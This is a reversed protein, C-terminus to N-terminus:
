ILCVVLSYNQYRNQAINDNNVSTPSFEGGSYSAMFPLDPSFADKIQKLEKSSDIGVVLQRTICSFVLGANINKEQAAQSIVQATSSVIDNGNNSGFTIRSGVPMLGSCIASGDSDISILARVFPRPNDVKDPTVLLPLLLDEGSKLAGNAAFGLSEFYKITSMQNIEYITNDAARTIVADSGEINSRPPLAATFFRPKVEGFLLVYSAESKLSKDNCIAYCQSFDPFNDDVTNTGFVPIKGCVAEFADIYYDGSLNGFVPLFALALKLRKSSSNIVTGLSDAISGMYDGALGSTHSVAFDVDNSTLLLMSLSLSGTADNTATAVTTGGVLPIGLVQYLREVIGAEIFEPPCQIIGVSSDLLTLKENMQERLERCALTVDDIEFTQLSAAKIM